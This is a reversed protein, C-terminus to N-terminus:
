EKVAYEEKVVVRVVTGAVVGATCAYVPTESTFEEKANGTATSPIPIGALPLAGATDAVLITNGGTDTNIVTVKTRHENLGVIMRAPTDTLPKVYEVYTRWLRRERGGESVIRVPVPEQPIPEEYYPVKITDTDVPPVDQWVDASAVGHVDYGRYALLRGSGSAPSAPVVEPGDTM